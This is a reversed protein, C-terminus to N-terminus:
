APCNARGTIPSPAYIVLSSNEFVRRYRAADARFGALDIHQGFKYLVVYRVDDRHIIGAAQCSAPHLLVERSDLLPQRGAPPLSRPHAIRRHFYSQLGVYGGMALVARNTIGLNLGPTSIITGGSNHQRLWSGAAADQSTLLGRHAPRGDIRINRAAQLGAAGFAAATAAAALVATVRWPPARWRALSQAIVCLGLAGLVSLPGGLDREFRKPFGDISTRSGVYLLACWTLVTMAALVQPPRRCYRVSTALAVVGFVGLWLVPPSLEALVHGPSLPAQSGIAIGVARSTASRGAVVEGLGYIYWAYAASLLALAALALTLARAERRCRRWLLYPLGALAVFVLLLVLYVSAVPHYLVVSGGVVTVTLGSRASPTVYLTILAAVAMIMLFFAGVLDPYRGEAFGLYSGILVLGSLAAAATGYQIGWLRTALAYAGLAIVVLLAPALVPFLVLPSLGSLRCVVATLAPFGPPYVLFTSYSGHSLLQGAMVVYSFQDSGRLYPWDHRIVGSYARFATLALVITLALMWLAPRAVSAAGPAPGAGTAPETVPGAPGAGAAPGAALAGALMLAVAIVILLWRHTRMGLMSALVLLLAIFILALARGDRIVSPRLVPDASGQPPGRIFSALAGSALVIVVSAVAVWLTVGTRAIRALLLAIAPGSAMSLVVSYALREALGSTRCLFGAWFYGPLVGAALAGALARVLDALL